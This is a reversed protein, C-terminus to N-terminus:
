KNGKVSYRGPASMYVIGKSTLLSINKLLESPSMKVVLSLNDITMAIKQSLVDFIVKEKQSLVIEEPKETSTKEDCSTGCADLFIDEGIYPYAGDYILRNTGEFNMDYIRGPVAWVERGLELALRATIMAGSKMPAEVVIIKEALAAVIRNRQPFHWPDGSSGLPFESILAGTQAIEEFLRRNAAPYVRDAGTGLVAIAEGGNECCASQSTSDVGWAGGSILLLGHVACATGIRFAVERGYTSMRRTGVVAIMKRGSLRRLNGRWYLVLPADKLDLLEKPYDTDDITVVSIGLKQARDLEKEAWGNSEATRLKQLSRETLVDKAADIPTPSWMEHPEIGLRTFKELAVANANVSNLLLLLKLREDM